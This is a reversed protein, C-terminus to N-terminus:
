PRFDGKHTRCCLEGVVGGKERTCVSFHAEEIERKKLIVGGGTVRELVQLFAFLCLGRCIAARKQDSRVKKVVSSPHSLTVTVCPQAAITHPDPRTLRGM